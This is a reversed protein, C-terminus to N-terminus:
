APKKGELIMSEMALFGPPLRSIDELEHLSAHSSYMIGPFCINTFGAEHMIDELTNPDYIFQHGWARVFNNIVVSERPKEDPVFTRTSWDIYRATSQSRNDFLEFLFELSPTVIRIVAGPAMVRYCEKLMARGGALPVHEIMHESYVYDFVGNDFPFRQTADMVLCDSGGVLDTTLWGHKRNGGAGIELKYPPKANMFYDTILDSM